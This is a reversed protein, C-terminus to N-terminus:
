KNITVSRFFSPSEIGETIGSNNEFNRHDVDTIVNPEDDSHVTPFSHSPHVLM